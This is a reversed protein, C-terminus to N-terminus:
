GPMVSNHHHDHNHDHDHPEAPPLAEGAVVKTAATHPDTESTAVVRVGQSAMRRIFGEGCGGTILVDLEFVPHQSGRFEHMSMEKPLDLREGEVIQGSDDQEFVLFRRTKGAHGTVTRFNQSTIGIKM